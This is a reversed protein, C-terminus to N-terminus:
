EDLGRIPLEAGARTAAAHYTQVDISPHIIRVSADGFLFNSGGGAHMSAFGGMAARTHVNFPKLTTGLSIMPYGVVWRAIGWRSTGAYPAPASASWLYDKYDYVTEGAFFTLSTGDVIEALRRGPNHYGFSPWHLGFVGDAQAMYDDTGECLLYSSPGGIENAAAIPVDRPIPMSPCLFTEIRQNAVARNHTHTYSLRFDWRQHNNGQELFPLSAVLPSLFNREWSGMPFRKFSSEYNHLALGIQRLNNACQM